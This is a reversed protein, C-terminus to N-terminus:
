VEEMDDLIVPTHEGARVSLFRGSFYENADEISLGDAFLKAYIKAKSYIAVPDGGAIRGVGVLAHNMNDLFVAEPNSDSLQDVIRQADM